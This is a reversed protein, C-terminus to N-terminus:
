GFRAVGVAAAVLAAGSAAPLPTVDIDDDAADDEEMEDVVDRM